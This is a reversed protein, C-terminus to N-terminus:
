GLLEIIAKSPLVSGYKADIDILAVDHVLGARDFVADDAVVVNFGYSTADVASARVCGSTTGGTLVLTRYGRGVLLSHLPTGFFISAKVKPMVIETDNPSIGEPFEISLWADKAADPRRSAPGIHHQLPDPRTYLIPLQRARFADILTVINPIASWAREGCAKRSVNQADLIPLDPGVFAETVDIVVLVPSDAAPTISKSSSYGALAAADQENLRESWHPHDASMHVVTGCRNFVRVLEGGGTVKRRM